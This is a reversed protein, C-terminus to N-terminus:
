EGDSIGIVWIINHWLDNTNRKYKKLSKDGRNKLDASRQNLEIVKIKQLRYCAEM